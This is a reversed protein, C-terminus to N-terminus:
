LTDLFHSTMLTSGFHQSHIWLQCVMIAISVVLWIRLKWITVRCPQLVPTSLCNRALLASNPAMVLWSDYNLSHKACSWGWPCFATTGKHLKTTPRCFEGRGSVVVFSFGMHVIFDTDWLSMPILQNKYFMWSFFYKLRGTKQM